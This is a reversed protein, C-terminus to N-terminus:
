CFLDVEGSVPCKIYIVTVRSTLLAIAIPSNINNTKGFLLFLLTRLNEHSLFLVLLYITM